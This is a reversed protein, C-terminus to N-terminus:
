ELDWLWRPDFRDNGGLWQVGLAAQGADNKGPYFQLGILSVKIAEAHGDFYGTNGRRNHRNVPRQPSSDYWGSNNPTRWYPRLELSPIAVWKDPDKEVWNSVQGFDALPMTAVPKKVNAIKTQNDAWNTLEPHGGAIGFTAKTSPCKMVNTTHVYPRLLDVWWYHGDNPIFSGPPPVIGILYLTVIRDRQDEAYMSFGLALQKINSLCSIARAKEKARSLAPLLLGALIAIIAIVVLLEILTFGDRKARAIPQNTTKM